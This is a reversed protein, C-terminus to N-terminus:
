AGKRPLSQRKQEAMYAAYGEVGLERIKLVCARRNSNFIFAFIRALLNDFKECRNPDHHDGCDACSAYSHDVCCTRIKCWTAKSNDHCGPCAGRLYRRCAGCYLGCYAVLSPDAVVDKKM